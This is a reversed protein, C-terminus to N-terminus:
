SGASPSSARLVGRLFRPASRVLPPHPSVCPKILGPCSPRVRDTESFQPVAISLIGSSGVVFSQAQPSCSSSESTSDLADALAAHACGSSSTHRAPRCRRRAAHARTRPTANPEVGSHELGQPLQHWTPAPLPSSLSRARARQVPAGTAPAGQVAEGQLIRAPRSAASAGVFRSPSSESELRTAPGAWPSGSCPLKSSHVRYSGKQVSPNIFRPRSDVTNLHREFAPLLRTGPVEFARQLTRCPCALTRCTRRVKTLMDCGEAVAQNLLRIARVPPGATTAGLHSVFVAM